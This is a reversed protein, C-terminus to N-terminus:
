IALDFVMNTGDSNVKMALNPDKEGTASLIAALHVIYNIKHNKMIEEFREKDLINLSKYECGIDVKDDPIDTALVQDAGFDKILAQTM